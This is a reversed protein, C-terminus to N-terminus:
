WLQMNMTSTTRKSKVFYYTVLVFPIKHLKKSTLTIAEFVQSVFFSMSIYCKELNKITLKKGENHLRSNESCAVEYGVKSPRLLDQLSM